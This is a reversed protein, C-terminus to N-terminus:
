HVHAQSHCYIRFHRGAETLDRIREAVSARLPNDIGQILRACEVADEHAIRIDRGWRREVGIEDGMSQLAALMSGNFAVPVTLWESMVIRLSFTIDQAELDDSDRFAMVISRVSRRLASFVDSSIEHREISCSTHADLFDFLHSTPVPM